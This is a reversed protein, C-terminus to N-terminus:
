SFLDLEGGANQTKPKEDSSTITGDDDFPVNYINTTSEDDGNIDDPIGLEGKFMYAFYKDKEPTTGSDYRNKDLKWTMFARGASDFEKNQYFVIDVERQVGISASLMSPGFKQVAGVPNARVLEDAQRNLQHATVFTCHRSKLFNCLNTYLEQIQAATVSSSDDNFNSTSSGKTMMNAYDIVCMLPTYGLRVYSEFFSVFDSFGFESGVERQVVFKWGYKRFEEQCYTIIQENTLDTPPTTRNNSAWIDKFLLMLNQQAENELSIFLCTPNKFESSVQNLTVQWRAMKLLSLSKGNFSRANFVISSGLPYGGGLARNMGQLGTKFRNAVTTTKYVTLAKHLSNADDFDITKVTNDDEKQLFKVGDHNYKSVEDCMATIEKLVKEQKEPDTISTNSLKAFMQKVRRMNATWLIHNTLKSILYKRRTETFPATDTFLGKLKTYLDPDKLVADSGKFKLLFSDCANTDTIKLNSRVVENLLQYYFAGLSTGDEVLNSDQKNSDYLSLLKLTLERDQGVQDHLELILTDVLLDVPFYM